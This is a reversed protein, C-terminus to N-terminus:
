RIGSISTVMMAELSFGLPTPSGPTGGSPGATALAIAFSPM